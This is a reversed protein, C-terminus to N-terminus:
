AVQYDHYLDKKWPTPISKWENKSHYFVRIKPRNNRPFKELLLKKLFNGLSRLYYEGVVPHDVIYKKVGYGFDISWLDGNPKKKINKDTTFM